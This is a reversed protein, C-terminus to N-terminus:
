ALSVALVSSPLPRLGLFSTSPPFSLLLPALHAPWCTKDQLGQLPLCPSPRSTTKLAGKTTTCVSQVPAPPCAQFPHAQVLLTSALPLHTPSTTGLLMPFGPTKGFQPSLGESSTHWCQPAPAGPPHSALSQLIITVPTKRNKNEQLM